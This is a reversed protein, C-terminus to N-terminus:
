KQFQASALVAISQTPSTPDVIDNAIELEKLRSFLLDYERDSIVPSESNYYLANHERIVDQLERINSATLNQLNQLLQSTRELLSNPMFNHNASFHLILSFITM